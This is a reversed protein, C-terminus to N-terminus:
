LPSLSIPKCGIMPAIISRDCTSSTRSTPLRANSKASNKTYSCPKSRRSVRSKPRFSTNAKTPKSGCWTCPINSSAFSETRTIGVTIVIAMIVPWFAPQRRASRKQPKSNARPSGNGLKSSARVRDMSKVRQRARLRSTRRFPRRVGARGAREFRGGPGADQAARRRAPQSASRVNSGRDQRACSINSCKRAAGAIAASSMAMVVAACDGPEPQDGHRSRWRVRYAQARFSAGSRERGRSRRPMVGIARLYMILSRGVMSSAWVWWYKRTAPSTTAATAM